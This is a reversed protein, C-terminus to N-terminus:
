GSKGKRLEKAIESEEPWSAAVAEELFQGAQELQQTIREAATGGTSIKRDASVSTDTANFYFDDDGFAEHVSSRLEKDAQPLTLNRESLKKVLAGVAHHAERFPVSKDKVLADALDTATAFGRDLSAKMNEPHFEAEAIMAHLAQVSVRTNRAADLMPQRDEQLDRNYAMPLSKLTTLLGTLHGTITGTKGRVLEALDPNKKQPMISSGTTLSDPLSLFRFEVSNWLIIEECLRSAHSFFVTCAYLFDLIHDRSSVADMSNMYMESFGLQQRLFERDTNYNVGLAAGSGLPLRDATRAAQRFREFDRSFAWFHALLQHSLRAPQAVQLHTYAPCVTSIQQQAREKLSHLLKLILKGTETAQRRIFLHTDTAIQDNRSRATHLKKGPEGTIETLRNEIHTHIDELEKKLEFRGSEIEDRVQFLGKIIVETEAASLIGAKELMRAHAVSGEIDELYLEIDLFISHGIEVTVESVNGSSRGQWLKHSDKSM